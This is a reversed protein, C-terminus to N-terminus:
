GTEMTKLVGPDKLIHLPTGRWVHWNRVYPASRALLLNIWLKTLAM